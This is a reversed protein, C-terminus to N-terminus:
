KKDAAPTAMSKYYAEISDYEKAGKIPAYRFLVPDTRNNLRWSQFDFRLLSQYGPPMELSGNVRLMETLDVLLRLPKPQVDQTIWLDWRVDDNQVGVFHIAPTEGRFRNRDILDVSKMGKTLTESPDVGALSLALVAEPYPGMPVPLEYVAEQMSIPKPLLTFATPSLAITSKQGDCYIRTKREAEKLYITFKDPSQSAIQYTSLQRSIVAGDVITEFSLAITTRTSRAKRIQDFLPALAKVAPTAQQKEPPQPKAGRKTSPQQAVVHNMCATSAVVFLLLVFSRAFAKVLLMAFLIVLRSLVRGDAFRSPVVFLILKISQPRPYSDCTWFVVRVM